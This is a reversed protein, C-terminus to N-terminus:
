YTSFKSKYSEYKIMFPPIKKATLYYILLKIYNKHDINSDNYGGFFNIPIINLNIKHIEDNLKISKNLYLIFIQHIAEKNINIIDILLSYPNIIYKDYTIIDLLMEINLKNPQYLDSINNTIKNIIKKDFILYHITELTIFLNTSIIITNNSKFELLGIETKNVTIEKFENYIDSLIINLQELIMTCNENTYITTSNKNIYYM